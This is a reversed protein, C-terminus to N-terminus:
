YVFNGNQNLNVDSGIWCCFFMGPKCVEFRAAYSSTHVTNQRVVAQSSLLILVSNRIYESPLNYRGPPM